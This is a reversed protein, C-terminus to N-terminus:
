KKENLISNILENFGVDKPVTRTGLKIEDIARNLLFKEADNLHDLVILKQADQVFSIDKEERGKIWALDNPFLAGSQMVSPNNVEDLKAISMRNYDKINKNYESVIHKLINTAEEKSEANIPLRIVAKFTKM